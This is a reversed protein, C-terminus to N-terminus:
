APGAEFVPVPPGDASRREFHLRVPLGIRLSVDGDLLGVVRAGSPFDVTVVTYPVPAPPDPSFAQHAVTWSYVTGEAGGDVPSVDFSQCLPCLMRPYHRIHGCSDCRQLVLRGHEAGDWYPASLDDSM